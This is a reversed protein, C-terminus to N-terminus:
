YLFYCLADTIELKVRHTLATLCNKPKAMKKEFNELFICIKYLEKKSFVM